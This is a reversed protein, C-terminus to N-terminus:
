VTGKGAASTTSEEGTGYGKSKTVANYTGKCDSLMTLYKSSYTGSAYGEAHMKNASYYGICTSNKNTSSVSAKVIYNNVCIAWNVDSAGAVVKNVKTAIEHAAKGASMADANIEATTVTSLTTPTPQISYSVGVGPEYSIWLNQKFGSQESAKSCRDKGLYHMIETQAANYIMKADANASNVRSKRYTNLLSPAIVGLLVGIIAIVVILEILTFGKVKKKTANMM